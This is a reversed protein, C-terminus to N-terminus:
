FLKALINKVSIEITFASWMCYAFNTMPAHHHLGYYKLTDSLNSVLYEGLVPFNVFLKNICYICQM